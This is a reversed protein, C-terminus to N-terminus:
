LSHDSCGLKTPSWDTYKISILCHAQVSLACTRMNQECYKLLSAYKCCGCMMVYTCIKMRWKSRARDLARCKIYWNIASVIESIYIHICICIEIFNQQEVLLRDVVNPSTHKNLLSGFILFRTMPTLLLLLLLRLSLSLPPPPTTLAWSFVFLTEFVCFFIWLFTFVVFM